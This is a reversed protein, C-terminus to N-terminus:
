FNNKSEDLMLDLKLIGLNCLAFLEFKAQYQLFQNM